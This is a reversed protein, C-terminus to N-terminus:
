SGPTGSLPRRELVRGEQLVARIRSVNAIDALPDGEVLLLDARTGVAVRGFDPEQEKTLFRAPHLTAARIAEAPTLGAKVLLGLERHLSAGPFVLTQSDSGALITVGAAHLRRVNDRANAQQKGVEELFPRFRKAAPDDPAPGKKLSAFVAPDVIEKELATAEFPQELNAYREFVVLTSVMPIGFGAIERVAEDSVRDRYVHHVYAAVGARGADLADETTGVHALTRLKRKKAETVIAALMEGDLRPTGADPLRDVAVKVFDAGYGAVEEVVGPIESARSLQRTHRPIAVAQMWRPLTRLMPVPHGDKVTLVPGAAYMRPGVLKGAAVADRRRIAKDDLDGTDVVTTVGAYLFAQLNREPDPLPHDWPASMPNASHVHSDVLGPLLTAGAGDVRKAGDPARVAGTAGIEVIRGARILVDRHEERTGREVDLVAVDSVLVAHAAREPPQVLSPAKACAAAAAAALVVVLSRRM